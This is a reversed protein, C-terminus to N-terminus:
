WSVPCLRACKRRGLYLNAVVDLNDCPALDQYVTSIGLALAGRPGNIHVPQGEFQITGADIPHIGAICKVLTLKGAGDEGALGVVEGAFADFDVDTLAQVAGFRKSSAGCTSCRLPRPRPAM